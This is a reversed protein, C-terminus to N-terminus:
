AADWQRFRAWEMKALRKLQWFASLRFIWCLGVYLCVGVLTQGILLNIDNGFRMRGAWVMGGAMVGSAFAYPSVDLLQKWFSYSLTRGASIANIYWTIAMAAIQSLVMTTIGFHGAILIFIVAMVTRVLEL